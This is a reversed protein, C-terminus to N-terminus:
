PAAQPIRFSEIRGVAVVAERVDARSKIQEWRENWLARQPAPPPDAFDQLDYLADGRMVPDQLREILLSAAEDLRDERVLAWQWTDLSDDRHKEIYALSEGAIAADGSQLAAAHRAGHMQMFGYPSMDRGVEQLTALAEESRGAEAYFWALNIVNSVNRSGDEQAQAAVRL